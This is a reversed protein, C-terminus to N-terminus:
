ESAKYIATPSWTEFCYSKFQTVTIVSLQSKEWSQVVATQDSMVLHITHMYFSLSTFTMFYAWKQRGKMCM